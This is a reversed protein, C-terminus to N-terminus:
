IVWGSRIVVERCRCIGHSIASIFEKPVGLNILDKEMLARSRSLVSLVLPRTFESKVFYDSSWMKDAIADYCDHFNPACIYGIVEGLPVALGFNTFAMDHVSIILIKNSTQFTATNNKQRLIDFFELRRSLMRSKKVGM